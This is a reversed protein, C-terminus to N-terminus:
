GPDAARDCTRGEIPHRGRVSRGEIGGAQGFIVLEAEPEARHAPRRGENAKGGTGAPRTDRRAAIKRGAEACGDVLLRAPHDSDREGSPVPQTPM